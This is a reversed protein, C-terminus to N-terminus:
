IIFGVLSQTLGLLFSTLLLSFFYNLEVGFVIMPEVRFGPVLYTALWIMSVNLVLSFFGLTVINIPLFLLSLIPRVVNQLLTLVISALILTIWDFYSITPLLWALIMISVAMTLFPKLLNM